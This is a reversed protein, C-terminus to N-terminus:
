WQLHTRWHSETQNCLLTSQNLELLLIFFDLMFIM